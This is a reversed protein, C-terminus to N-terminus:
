FENNILLKICIYDFSLNDWGHESTTAGFCELELNPLINRILPLRWHFRTSSYVSVYLLVHVILGMCIGTFALNFFLYLILVQLTWMTCYPCCNGYLLLLHVLVLVICMISYGLLFNVCHHRDTWSLIGYTVVLVFSALQSGLSFIFEYSFTLHSIFLLYYTDTWTCYKIFLM